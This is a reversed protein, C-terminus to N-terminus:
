SECPPLWIARQLKRTTSAARRISCDNPIRRGPATVVGASGGASRSAPLPGGDAARDGVPQENGRVSTGDYDFLVEAKLRDQHWRSKRSRHVVLIPKPTVVVEELQLEPPLELRPLAPMDLLRDVLEHEEGNPVQFDDSRRLLTVWPYADFDQFPRIQNNSIALGGPV